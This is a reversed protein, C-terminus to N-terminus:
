GQKGASRNIMLTMVLQISVTLIFIGNMIIVPTLGLMYAYIEYLVGSMLTIVLISVSLGETTRTTATKIVQPLFSWMLFFGATYGIIDLM